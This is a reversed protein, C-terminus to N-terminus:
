RLMVVLAGVGVELEGDVAVVEGDDGVVEDGNLGEDGVGDGDADALAVVHNDLGVLGGAVVPEASLPHAGAGGVGVGIVDGADDAVVGGAGGVRGRLADDGGRLGAVVLGGGAEDGADGEVDAGDALDGQLLEAEGGAAGPELPGEVAAAELEVPLGRGDHLHHCVVGRVRGVVIDDGNVHTRM